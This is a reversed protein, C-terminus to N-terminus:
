SDIGLRVRRRYPAEVFPVRGARGATPVVPEVAVDHRARVSGAVVSSSGEARASPVGVSADVSVVAPRSVRRGEVVVPPLGFARATTVRVDREPGSRMIAM